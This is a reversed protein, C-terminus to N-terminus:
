PDQPQARVNETEADCTEMDTRRTCPWSKERRSEQKKTAGARSM